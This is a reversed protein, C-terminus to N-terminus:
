TGDSVAEVALVTETRPVYYAIYRRARDLEEFGDHYLWLERAADVAYIHEGGEGEMIDVVARLVQGDAFDARMWEHNQRQSRVIQRTLRLAFVICVLVGIGLLIGVIVSPSFRQVVVLALALPVGGCMSLLLVMTCGVEYGSNDRVRARQHPSIIGRQNHELDDPTYDFLAPLDNM